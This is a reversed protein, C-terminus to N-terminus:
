LSLLRALLEVVAQAASLLDDDLHRLLEHM